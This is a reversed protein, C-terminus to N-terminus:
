SNEPRKAVLVQSGGCPLPLGLRRLGHEIRSLGLMFRATVPSMIYEAQLQERLTRPVARRRALLRSTVMLPFALTMFSSQYAITFGVGAAKRALEGVRYRRQHHALDDTTSWMWPHQPVTAILVGGPRLMRYIEELVAVDEPIHELVDFAGVVDLANRLGSRRADMQFLEVSGGHRERATALGISHLESGAIRAAPLADRVAQLVFGTGCGIELARRASPAFREVLWRVLQNRSIFWFHTSEVKPLLAFNELDFGENVQDLLPSLLVFGNTEAPEFGCAACRWNRPWLDEEQKLASAAGCSPCLRSSDVGSDTSM